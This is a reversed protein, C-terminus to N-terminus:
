RGVKGKERFFELVSVVHKENLKYLAKCQSSDFSKATIQLPRTVQTVNTWTM